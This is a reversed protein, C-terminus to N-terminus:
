HRIRFGQEGAPPEEHVELGSVRAHPPGQRAFAVLSAVARAEGEFVAEVDGGPLNRVWGAVGAREAAEATAARFFVGQVRGRVVVRRRVRADEASPADVV